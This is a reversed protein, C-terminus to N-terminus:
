HPREGSGAAAQGPFEGRATWEARETEIKRGLSWATAWLALFVAGLVFMSHAEFGVAIAAVQVGWGLWYGWAFRLLGAVVICALSLGLGIWLATSTPLGAISILVPTSLGFAIAELALIAACLRRQM